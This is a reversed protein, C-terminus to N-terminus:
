KLAKKNVPTEQIFKLSVVKIYAYKYNNNSNNYFQITEKVLLYYEKKTWEVTTKKTWYSYLQEQKIEPENGFFELFIM